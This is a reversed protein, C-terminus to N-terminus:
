ITVSWCVQLVRLSITM